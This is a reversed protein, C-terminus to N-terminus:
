WRISLHETTKNQFQSFPTTIRAPVRIKTRVGPFILDGAVEDQDPTTGPPTPSTGPVGPLPETVIPPSTPPTTVTGGPDVPITVGPPTPPQWSGDPNTIVTDGDRSWVRGSGGQSGDPSPLYDLGPATM